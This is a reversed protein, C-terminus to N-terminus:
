MMRRRMALVGGALLLGLSAPEPIASTVEVNDIWYYNSTAVESSRTRVQVYYGNVSSDAPLSVGAIPILTPSSSYLSGSQTGAALSATALVVSVGTGDANQTAVVDVMAGGTTIAEADANVTFIEGTAIQVGTNNFAQTQYYLMPTGAVNFPNSATAGLAGGASWNLPDAGANGWGGNDIPDGAENLEFDGNRTDADVIVVAPALSAGLGM